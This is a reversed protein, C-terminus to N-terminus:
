NEGHEEESSRARRSPAAKRSRTRARGGRWNGASKGSSHKQQAEKQSASEDPHPHKESSASAAEGKRRVRVGSRRPAAPLKPCARAAERWIHVDDNGLEHALCSVEFFDLADYFWDKRCFALKVASSMKQPRTFRHQSTLIRSVQDKNLRSFNMYRSIPELIGAVEALNQANKQRQKQANERTFVGRV